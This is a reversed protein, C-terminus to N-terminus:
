WTESPLMLSLIRVSAVLQSGNEPFFYKAGLAQLPIQAPDLAEVLGLAEILSLHDFIDNGGLRRIADFQRDFNLFTLRGPNIAEFNLPYISEGCVVALLHEGLDFDLDAIHELLVFPLGELTLKLGLQM